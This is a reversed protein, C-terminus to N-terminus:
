AVEEFEEALKDFEKASVGYLEKTDFSSCSFLVGFCNYEKCFSATRYSSDFYEKTFVIKVDENKFEVNEILNLQKWDEIKNKLREIVVNWDESFVGTYAGRGNHETSGKLKLQQRLFTNLSRKKWDTCGERLAIYLEFDQKTKFTEGLLKEAQDLCDRTSSGKIVPQPKNQHSKKDFLWIKLQTPNAIQKMVTNINLNLTPCIL